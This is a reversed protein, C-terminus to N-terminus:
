ACHVGSCQATFLQNSTKQFALTLTGWQKYCDSFSNPCTMALRLMAKYMARQGLSYPVSKLFFQNNRLFVWISPNGGLGGVPPRLAEGLGGACPNM